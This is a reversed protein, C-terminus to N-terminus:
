EKVRRWIEIRPHDFFRILAEAGDDKLVLPGIRPYSEFVTVREFPLRGADLDAYFASEVPRLEPATTFERRHGESLVLVDARRLVRELHEVRDEAGRREHLDYFDRWLIEYRLPTRMVEPSPSGLPPGYGPPDEVAVTETEGVNADLWKAAAVRPDDGGYIASFALGHLLTLASVVAAPVRWRAVPLAACVALAPLAPLLFRVTKVRAALLLLLVPVLVLLLRTDRPSRRRALIVLGGVALMEPVIGVAYPLLKTLETVLPRDHAYPLTWDHFDASYARRLNGGLTTHEGGDARSAADGLVLAPNLAVAVVAATGLLLGARGLFRRRWGGEGRGEGDGSGALAHLMPLVLVAGPAKVSVALGLVAGAAAARRAMARGAERWEALREAALMGAALLAVLPAEVTGFHSAQVLAPFGATLAAATLATTWGWRSAWCGVLVIAATGWTASIWRSLLVTAAFEDGHIPPGPAAAVGLFLKRAAVLLWLPLIGYSTIGPDPVGQGLSRELEIAKAVVFLREDIHLAWPLGWDLGRFRLAAGALVIVVFTVRVGASM